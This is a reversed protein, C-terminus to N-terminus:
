RIAEIILWAGLLVYFVSIIKSKNIIFLIGLIGEIVGIYIDSSVVRLEPCERVYVIIHMIADIILVIGSVIVAVTLVKEPNTILLFAIVILTISILISRMALKNFTKRITELFEM